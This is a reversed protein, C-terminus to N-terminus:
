AGRELGVRDDQKVYDGLTHLCRALLKTEDEMKETLTRSRRTMKSLVELRDSLRMVLGRLGDKAGDKEGFDYALSCRELTLGPFEDEPQRCFRRTLTARRKM